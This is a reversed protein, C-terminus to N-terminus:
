PMPCRTPARRRFSAQLSLNLASCFDPKPDWERPSSPRKKPSAPKHGTIPDISTVVNQLAADISFLYKGNAADIIAMKGVTVITKTPKGKVQLPIIMREFAWDLDWQDNSQHQFHWVIKGTAPNLALTSDTYLADNTAGPKGIPTALPATNYTNGTGFFALNLAPDYDGTTWVSGGSSDM